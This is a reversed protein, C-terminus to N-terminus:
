RERVAVVTAVVTAVRTLVARWTELHEFDLPPAMEEDRVRNVLRGTDIATRLWQM